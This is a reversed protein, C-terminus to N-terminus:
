LPCHLVHTPLALRKECRVFLYSDVVGGPASWRFCFLCGWCILFQELQLAPPACTRCTSASPPSSLPPATSARSAGDGDGHAETRERLTHLAARAADGAADDGDDAPAKLDVAHRMKIALHVDDEHQDFRFGSGGYGSGHLVAKGQKRKAEFGKCLEQM